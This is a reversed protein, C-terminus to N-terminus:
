EPTTGIKVAGLKFSLQTPYVCSLWRRVSLTPRFYPLNDFNLPISAVKSSNDM